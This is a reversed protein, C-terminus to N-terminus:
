DILYVNEKDIYIHNNPNYIIAMEDLNNLFVNSGPNNLMSFQKVVRKKM